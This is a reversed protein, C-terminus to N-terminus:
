KNKWAQLNQIQYILIMTHPHRTECCGQIDTLRIEITFYKEVEYSYFQWTGANNVDIILSDDYCAPQTFDSYSLWAIGNIANTPKHIIATPQNIVFQEANGYITNDNSLYIHQQATSSLCILLHFAIFLCIAWIL